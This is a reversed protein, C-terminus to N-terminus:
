AHGINALSLARADAATSFAQVQKCAALPLNVRPLRTASQDATMVGGDADVLQYVIMM